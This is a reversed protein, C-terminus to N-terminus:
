SHNSKSKSTLTCELSVELSRGSGEVLDKTSRLFTNVRIKWELHLVSFNWKSKHPPSNKSEKKCKGKEASVTRQLLRSRKIHLDIFSLICPTSFPSFCPIFFIFLFHLSSPIFIISQISSYSYSVLLSLSSLFFFSRSFSLNTNWDIHLEEKTVEFQDLLHDTTNNTNRYVKISGSQKKRVM